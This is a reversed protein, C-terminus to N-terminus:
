KKNQLIKYYQVSRQIKRKKQNADSQGAAASSQQAAAASRYIMKKNKKKFIYIYAPICDRASQTKYKKKEAVEQPQVAASHQNLHPAPSGSTWGM